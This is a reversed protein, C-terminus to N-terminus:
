HGTAAGHWGGSKQTRNFLVEGVAKADQEAIQNITPIDAYTESQEEGFLNKLLKQAVADSAQQMQAANVEEGYRLMAQTSSYMRILESMSGRGANAETAGRLWLVTPDTESYGYDSQLLNALFQYIQWYGIESNAAQTRMAALQDMHNQTLKTLM